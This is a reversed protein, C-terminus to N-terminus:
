VGDNDSDDSGDIGRDDGSAVAITTQLSSLFSSPTTASFSFSSFSSFFSPIYFREFIAMFFFMSILISTVIFGFSVANGSSDFNSWHQPLNEDVMKHVKM